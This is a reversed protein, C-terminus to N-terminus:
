NVKFKLGMRFNLSQNSQIIVDITGGRATQFDAAVQLQTSKLINQIQSATIPIFTTTENVATVQGAENIDAAQVLSPIEQFLSDLLQNNDDIFYLQLTAALPLGNETILKFEGETIQDVDSFPTDFNETVVFNRTRGVVPVEVFVQAEFTSNDEIFSTLIPNDDPNAIATLGYELETLQADFVDVINSNTYDLQLITRKSEGRQELQPYNIDIGDIATADVALPVGSRTFANLVDIRSRIPVGFSSNINATITPESFRINGNLFREDYLDIPIITPNLQFEERGWIGKVFSLEPRAVISANNLLIPNGAGDEAQYKIILENNSPRFTFGSLNLPITSGNLTSSTVTLPKGNSSIQPLEFTIKAKDDDIASFQFVLIGDSIIAEEVTINAPLEFPLVTISDNLAAIVPFELAGLIDLTTVSVQESEYRFVLRGDPEIRLSQNPSNNQWLDVFSISGDKIIPIAFEADYDVNSIDEQVKNCGFNLFALILIIPIIGKMIIQSLLAFNIIYLAFIRYKSDANRCLAM